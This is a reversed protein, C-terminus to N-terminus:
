ELSINKKSYFVILNFNLPSKLTLRKIADVTRVVPLM